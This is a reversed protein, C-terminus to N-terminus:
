PQRVQLTRLFNHVVREADGDDMVDRRAIFGQM